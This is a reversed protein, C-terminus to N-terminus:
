SRVYRATWHFLAAMFRDDGRAPLMQGTESNEIFPLRLSVQFGPFAQFAGDDIQSGTHKNIVLGIKDYINFSAKNALLELQRYFAAIKARSILDEGGVLLIEDSMELLAMNRPDFSTDMDVIVVDYSGTQRFQGLLRRYDGPHMESMELITESPMFFHVGYAIDVSKLGELKMGLDCEGDKLYFFVHSLNHESSGNFYCTPAQINELNLYFTKLGRKSCQISLNAAISTKGAGGIPSYVAIIRTDKATNFKAFEPRGEGSMIELISAVLVDGHQYKNVCECGEVKGSYKGEYLIIVTGSKSLDKASLFEPSVLFLDIRDENDSLYKELYETRTFASIHFRQSYNNLLFGTLGEVYDEDSDAIVMRIKSM